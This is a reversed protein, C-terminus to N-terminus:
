RRCGARQLHRGVLDIEIEDQSVLHHHTRDVGAPLIELAAHAVHSLGFGFVGPHSARSSVWGRVVPQVVVPATGSM